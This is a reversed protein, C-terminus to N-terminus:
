GKLDFENIRIDLSIPRIFIGSVAAFLNDLSSGYVAQEASDESSLFRQVYKKHVNQLFKPMLVDIKKRIAEEKKKFSGFM